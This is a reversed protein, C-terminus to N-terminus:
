SQFAEFQPQKAASGYLQAMGIPAREVRNSFYVSGPLVRVESSRSSPSTLLVDRVPLRTSMQTEISIVMEGVASRSTCTNEVIEINVLVSDSQNLNIPKNDDGLLLIESTPEYYRCSIVVKQTAVESARQLLALQDKSIHYGLEADPNKFAVEAYWFSGQKSNIRDYSVSSADPNPEIITSMTSMQCRVPFSDRWHGGNPDIYYEGEKTNPAHLALDACSLAPFRQTGSATYLRDVMASIRQIATFADEDQSGCEADPADSMTLGEFSEIGEVPADNMMGATEDPSVRDPRRFMRHYETSFEGPPGPPGPPGPEGEEGPIGTEGQVGPPGAPGQPGPFGPPGIAGKPGDEGRIGVAGGPLGMPGADGPPGMVGMNGAPGTDGIPGPEGPIGPPGQDGTEGAEGPPGRIGAFGTEGIKGQPGVAGKPGIAGSVGRPGMAGPIGMPGPPGMEGPPGRPGQQGPPGQIGREGDAGTPGADGRPGPPGQPGTKGIPGTAGQRGRQGQPGDAG